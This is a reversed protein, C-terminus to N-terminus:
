RWYSLFIEACIINTVAWEHDVQGAMVEHMGDQLEERDILGQRSFEGDLCIELIRKQNKKLGRQSVGSTEGKDRRWVADTLFTNSLADRFLFRNFGSQYSEYTPISLALEMLPQSFLPFFVPNTGGDRVDARITALGNYIAEIHQRKGPLCNAGRNGNFFPHYRMRKERAFIDPHLWPTCNFRNLPTSPAWYNRRLYYSALSKGMGLLLKWIPERYLLYLDRMKVSLGTTGFKILYDSLSTLPPCTMFLHDGGHGSIYILGDESDFLDSIDDNIKQFSLLSSPWNPKYLPSCTVQDYPMSRSYDFETLQMGLKKAIASAYCREDSSAVHPHFMNILKVKQKKELISNLLLLIGTSDTGGSFDLSLLKADNTWSRIVNSSIEIIAQKTLEPGRYENIYHLPNWAIDCEITENPAAFKLKCGHPLEYVGEFATQETTIFTRLVFSSLYDWNFGPRRGLMEVLIEIESAILIEGSTAKTYFLSLQGTADRVIETTGSGTIIFIYSGWYTNCFEESPKGLYEELDKETIAKFTHKHFAKGLLVGGKVSLVWGPSPSNSTRGAVVSVTDQRWYTIDDCIARRVVSELEVQSSMDTRQNFAGAFIMNM